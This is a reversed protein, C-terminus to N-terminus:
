RNAGQLSGTSPVIGGTSDIAFILCNAVRDDVETWGEFTPTFVNIDLVSDEWPVGVYGEFRDHCATWAVESVVDDGPYTATLSFDQDLTFETSVTDLNILAFVELDHSETCDIPDIEYFVDEEPINLCDGVAIEDVTKSSDLFSFLAFGGVVLVVLIWAKSFISGGGGKVPVPAPGPATATWDAGGDGDVPPPPAWTSPDSTTDLPAEPEFPSAPLTEEPPEPIVPAEPMPPPTPQAVPPPYSEVKFDPPPEPVSDAGGLGERARRLLEESSLPQDGQNEDM